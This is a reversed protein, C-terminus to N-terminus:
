GFAELCFANTAFDIMKQPPMKIRFGHIIGATFADEGGVRDVINPIDIVESQYFINDIFLNGQLRNHSANLVERTTSYFAKINPYLRKIESYYYAVNEETKESVGFNVADLCGASCWDVYNAITQICRSCANVPWLKGRYNINLSVIIQSKKSRKILSDIEYNQLKIQDRYFHVCFPFRGM